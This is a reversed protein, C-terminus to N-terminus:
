NRITVGGEWACRVVFSFFIVQLVSLCYRPALAMMGAGDGPLEAWGLREARLVSPSVSRADGKLAGTLPKDIENDRAGGTLTPYSLMQVFRIM